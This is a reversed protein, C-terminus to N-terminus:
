QSRIEYSAEDEEVKIFGYSSSYRMSGNVGPTRGIGRVSILERTIIRLILYDKLCLSSKWAQVRTMRLDADALQFNLIEPDHFNLVVLKNILGFLNFLQSLAWNYM